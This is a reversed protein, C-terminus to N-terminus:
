TNGGLRTTLKNHASRVLNDVAELVEPGNPVVQIALTKHEGDDFTNHECTLSVHGTMLVEAEFYGGQAIVEKALTEIEEPREIGNHVQRGNPRLYQTFPIM